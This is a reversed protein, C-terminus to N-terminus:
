DGIGSKVWNLRASLIFNIESGLVLGSEGLRQLPELLCAGEGLHAAEMGSM